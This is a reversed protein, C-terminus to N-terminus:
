HKLAKNSYIARLHRMQMIRSQSSDLLRPCRATHSGKGSQTVVNVEPSLYRNNPDPKWKPYRAHKESTSFYM